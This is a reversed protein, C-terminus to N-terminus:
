YKIDTRARLSETTKLSSSVTKIAMLYIHNRSTGCSEFRTGSKHSLFRHAVCFPHMLKDRNKHSSRLSQTPYTLLNSGIVIHTIIIIIFYLYQVKVRCLRALFPKKTLLCVSTYNLYLHLKEVTHKKRKKTNPIFRHTNRWCAM